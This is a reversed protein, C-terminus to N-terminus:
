DVVGYFLPLATVPSESWGLSGRLADGARDAEAQNRAHLTFLVEGKEVREGVKRHVLIGVGYDIPDGKRERGAGMLVSTEGVIRANVQSLWGTREALVQTELVASPLREPHDIFTL